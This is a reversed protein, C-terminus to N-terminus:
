LREVAARLDDQNVHTYIETTSVRAHGLAEQVTRLDSVKLLRTAYTHRLMHPHVRVGIANKGLQEVWREISRCTPPLKGPSKAAAFDAISFTDSISYQDYATQITQRLRTTIPVTRQRRLKTAYKDLYIATKAIGNHVLDTWALNRAESLRLGADLM